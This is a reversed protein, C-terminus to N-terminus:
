APLQMTIDRQRHFVRERLAADDRLEATEAALLRQLTQRVSRWAPQGLSLFANLSDGAFIGSQPFKAESFKGQEELVSLDVIEEGLAVGVRAAGDAPKFVGFPLNELPFPSDAPVAVFSRLPM